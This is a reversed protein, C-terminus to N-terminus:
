VMLSVSSQTLFISQWLTRMSFASKSLKVKIDSKGPHSLAPVLYFPFQPLWLLKRAHAGKGWSYDFLLATPTFPIQMAKPIPDSLCFSSLAALLTLLLIPALAQLDSLSHWDVSRGWLVHWTLGKADADKGTPTCSGTPGPADVILGHPKRMVWMRARSCSPSILSQELQKWLIPQLLVLSFSSVTILFHEELGPTPCPPGPLTPCRQRRELSYVLRPGHKQMATLDVNWDPNIITMMKLIEVYYDAQDQLWEM